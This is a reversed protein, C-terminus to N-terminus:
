RVGELLVQGSLRLAEGTSSPLSELLFYGVGRNLRPILLGTFKTKRLISRSDGDPDRLTFTGAFAGNASNLLSFGVLTPNNSISRSVSAVAPATLTFNQSFEGEFAQAAGLLGGESFRLRANNLGAPIGFLIDGPAPAAYRGGIMVLDHVPFGERYASAANSAANPGKKWTLQGDLENTAPNMVAWGQLSGAVLPNTQSYLVERM